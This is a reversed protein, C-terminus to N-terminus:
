LIYLSHVSRGYKIIFKNITVPSGKQARHSLLESIVVNKSCTLVVYILGKCTRITTCDGFLLRICIREGIKIEEFMRM